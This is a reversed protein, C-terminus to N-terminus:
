ESWVNYGKWWLSFFGWCIMNNLMSAVSAIENLCFFDLGYCSRPDQHSFHNAAPRLHSWYIYITSFKYHNNGGAPFYQVPRMTKFNCSLLTLLINKDLQPKESYQLGFPLKRWIILVWSFELTELTSYMMRDFGTEASDTYSRHTKSIGLQGSFKHALSTTTTGM